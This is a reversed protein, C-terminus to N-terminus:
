RAALVAEYHEVVESAQIRTLERVNDVGHTTKIYALFDKAMVGAAKRANDLKIYDDQTVLDDPLSISQDEADVFPREFDMSVREPDPKTEITTIKAKAQVIEGDADVEAGMEEPTYVPLGNSLDPTYWNFGNSMARAFLMNRPYKKWVDKGNLDAREADKMTFTSLGISEKDEFFEIACEQDRKEDPTKVRYNYRGSRKILSAMLRASFTPKGDVVHIGIMAAVPGIGIEQGALVKVVAQAEDKADKFYGSTALVKGLRFLDPSEGAPQQYRTVSQNMVEEM